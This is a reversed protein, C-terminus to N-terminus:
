HALPLKLLLYRDSEFIVTALRSAIFMQQLETFNATTQKNLLVYEARYKETILLRQSSSTNGNFFLNVDDFRQKQDAVFAQPHLAGIVKGRISPIIWSTELDSLVVSNDGVHQQLFLLDKYAHQTSMPRGLRISNVTTLARTSTALLWPASFYVLTVFLALPIVTALVPKSYIAVQELRVIGVAILLQMLIIIISIVRGFSYKETLGGYIYICALMVIMLLIAQGARNKLAWAAFPLAVLTPWIKSLVDVYMSQNEPHYVDGAGAILAVLSFYPWRTAAFIALSGFFVDALVKRQRLEAATSWLQCILGTAFFIATLPHTLLVCWFLVYIFALSFFSFRASRNFGLSLGLLSLALAFTSPYPLVDAILNFNLFGSYGWTNSGWLFLILLLAYFACDRASILRDCKVLSSYFTKVSFALLCFNVLGFATLANIATTHTLSALGALFVSYPSIFAHSATLAFFPHTPESLNGLLAQIAASHEWFDGYHVTTTAAFIFKYFLFCVLIQYRHTSLVRALFSLRAPAARYIRLSLKNTLHASM